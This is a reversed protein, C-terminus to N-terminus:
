ESASITFAELWASEKTSDAPKDDCDGPPSALESLAM